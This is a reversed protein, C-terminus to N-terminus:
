SRGVSECCMKITARAGTERWEDRLDRAPGRTRTTAEARTAEEGDEFRKM